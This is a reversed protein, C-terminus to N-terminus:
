LPFIDERRFWKTANEQQVHVVPGKVEVVLGLSTRDGAKLRARYADVSRRYKPDSAYRQGPTSVGGSILECRELRKIQELDTTYVVTGKVPDFCKHFDTQTGQASAPFGSLAVLFVGFRVHRTVAGTRVLKRHGYAPVNKDAM